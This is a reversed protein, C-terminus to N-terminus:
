AELLLHIEFRKKDLSFIFCKDTQQFVNKFPALFPNTRFAELYRLPHLFNLKGIVDTFTICQFIGASKWNMWRKERERRDSKEEGNSFESRRTLARRVWLLNKREIESEAVM